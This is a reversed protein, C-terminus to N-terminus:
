PPLPIEYVSDTLLEGGDLVPLRVGSVPDYWGLGVRMGRGDDPLIYEDAVLDGPEWLWTPFAGELPPSDGAALLTGEADYLHVLTVYRDPVPDGARWWAQVRLRDRDPVLRVGELWITEGFLPGSELHAELPVESPGSAGVRVLGLGLMTGAPQGAVTVPLRKGDALRYVIAVVRWAQAREVQAPIRLRYRDVIVEDREWAYTPHTGGGPLTNLNVLTVDDGPVPSLLQFALAYDETITRTPQLFLTVKLARGPELSRPSVEYGLAAMADGFHADPLPQPPVPASAAPYRPPLAFAPGLVLLAGALAMGSLGMGVGALVWRPRATLRALGYGLLAGIAANAQFFLRGMSTSTNVWNWRAWSAFVLGLWVLLLWGNRRELTPLTKWTRAAGWVAGAVILAILWYTPAPFQLDCAFTAWYSRFASILEPVFLEAPSSRRPGYISTMRDLGTLEGYLTWNRAFWWGSVLAFSVGLLLAYGGLRRPQRWLAILLGMGAFALAMLGGVKALTALGCILGLALVRVATFGRRLCFMTTAVCLASLCNVLNDNNVVGGMFIFQPNFAVVAAALLAVEAPRPFALHATWYVAAVTLGGLLASFLRMVHVARAAGQYPFEEWRPDHRYLAVNYPGPRGCTTFPNAPPLGERGALSLGFSRVLAANLAYYLPPQSGEQGFGYTIAYERTQVPIGLGEVLHKVYLLHGIEDPGEYIPTLLGYIVALALYLIVLLLPLLRLQKMTVAPLDRITSPM